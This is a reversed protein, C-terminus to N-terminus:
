LGGTRSYFPDTPVPALGGGETNITEWPVRDLKLFSTMASGYLKERVEQPNSQDWPNENRPALRGLWERGQFHDSLSDLIDDHQYRPFKQLESELSEKLRIADTSGPIAGLGELFVLDGSKYWPQLTNLIREKKSMDNEHKIFKLNIHLNLLQLKRLLGDKFGRVYGTEEITVTLPSHQLQVEILQQIIQDPLWKGHRIEVVYGRGARDWAVTTIATYDARDTKTEATDVTTTKMVVKVNQKFKNVPIWKPYHDNVPFPMQKEDVKRPDNLQQTAFLYEGKTPDLRKEELLNTPWREPWWSIKHGDPGYLFPYDLEEPTFKEGKGDPTEKKFCGRVHIAWQRRSPEKKVENDIIRGYLDSFDYRTGEVDIWYSPAVLLNEMMGFSSVVSEIQDTTKVNSPEVIDSFKMVDVHIGSSGKDISGTMFTPEKRTNTKARAETTFQQRNGWDMIGKQPVYDPFLSRFIPNAQFHKKVEGLIMEAKDGNSQIVMMAIDPYNLIWQISHSQANITTKLFGRPDLILVRRGGPLATLDTHPTYVWNGGNLRELKEMEGPTPLPFKQLLNMFPFRQPGIVDKYGLIDKALYTLDTRAKWRAMRTQYLENNSLQRVNIHPM